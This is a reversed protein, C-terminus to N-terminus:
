TDRRASARARSRHAGAVDRRRSRCPDHRSALDDELTSTRVDVEPASHNLQGRVISGGGASDRGHAAVRENMQGGFKERVDDLDLIAPEVSRGSVRGHVAVADALVVHGLVYRELADSDGPHRLMKGRNEVGDGIAPLMEAAEDRQRRMQGLVGSGLQEGGGRVSCASLDLPQQGLAKRPGVRRRAYRDLGGWGEISKPLHGRPWNRRATCHRRRVDGRRDVHRPGMDRRERRLTRRELGRDILLGLVPQALRM